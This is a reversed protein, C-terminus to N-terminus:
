RLETVKYSYLLRVIFTLRGNVQEMDVCLGASTLVVDMIHGGTGLGLAKTHLSHGVSFLALSYGLSNSWFETALIRTPGLDLFRVIGFICGLYTIYYTMRFWYYMPIYFLWFINQTTGFIEYFEVKELPTIKDDDEHCTVNSVIQNGHSEPSSLFFPVSDMECTFLAGKTIAM